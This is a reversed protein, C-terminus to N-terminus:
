QITGCPYPVFSVPVPVPCNFLVLGDDGPVPDGTEDSQMVAPTTLRQEEVATFLADVSRIDSRTQDGTTDILDLAANAAFAALALFPLAIPQTRSM